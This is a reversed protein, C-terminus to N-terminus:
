GVLPPSVYMLFQSVTGQTSYGTDSQALLTDKQYFAKMHKYESSNSSTARINPLKFGILSNDYQSFTM